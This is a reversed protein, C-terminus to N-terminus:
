SRGGGKRGIMIFLGGDRLGGAISTIQSVVRSAPTGRPRPSFLREREGLAPGLAPKPISNVFEFGDEDMWRLVEDITHRARRPRRPRSYAHDLRVILHGGRRVLRGLRAFVARSDSTSHRMGHSIVVDFFEDRLAPRLPNMAAFAARELGNDTKFRHALRLASFSVDVGIVTRHPISLFNALQGTGCGIEAVRADYPIQDNLHRAFLGARAKELLARPTDIDEYGPSPTSEQDPELLDGPVFLRPIGDEVPWTEGTRLNRASCGDVLLPDGTTPDAWPSDAAPTTGASAEHWLTLGLPQAAKELVIDELVLVDMESQMFTHYAEEPTLVIPEWSLNFSTNVLVPCGTRDHFRQMLRHFRGHREDITQVRASYDVHTIAPVSSRSINVRRVLDPDEALARADEPSLARRRSELVPAVMLMYPSEEGPRMAFWEHVHERL